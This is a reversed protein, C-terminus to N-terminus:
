AGPRPQVPQQRRRRQHQWREITIDDGLPKGCICCVDGDRALLHTVLRQKHDSGPRQKREITKGAKFCDLHHRADDPITLDGRANRHIIVTGSGALKYRLVEWTNTPDQIVAGNEILFSSFKALQKPQRLNM